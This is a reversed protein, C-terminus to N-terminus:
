TDFIDVHDALLHAVEFIEIDTDFTDFEVTSDEFPNSELSSGIESPDISADAASSQPSDCNVNGLSVMKSSETRGGWENGTADGEFDAGTADIAYNEIDKLRCNEIRWKGETEPAVIATGEGVNDNPVFYTGGIVSDTIEWEGSSAPAWVASSVNTIHSGEIKWDGSARICSVGVFRNNGLKSDRVVWDGSTRQAGVGSENNTVRTREITWDGVSEKLELGHHGNHRIESDRVTWDSVTRSSDAEIGDDGNREIITNTVSWAGTTRGADIGEELNLRIVADEVRWEGKSEVASIGDDGNLELTVDRVTWAGTTRDAEIAVEYGRITFGVIEPEIGSEREITIGRTGSGVDVGFVAGNAERGLGEGDLVVEGSARLTVSKRLEIQESYTGSLVEVTSDEEADNIASQISSYETESTKGVTLVEASM